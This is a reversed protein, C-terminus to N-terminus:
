TLDFYTQAWRDCYRRWSLENRDYRQDLEGLEEAITELRAYQAAGDVDDDDAANHRATITLSRRRLSSSARLLLVLGILLVVCLTTAVIFHSIGASAAVVEVLAVLTVVSVWLWRRALHACRREIRSSAPPYIVIRITRAGYRTSGAVVYGWRYRGELLTRRLREMIARM